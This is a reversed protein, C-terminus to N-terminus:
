VRSTIPRNQNEIQEQILKPPKHTELFKDMETSLRLKQYMTRGKTWLIGKYHETNRFYFTTTIDKNETRIKTIQPKKIM